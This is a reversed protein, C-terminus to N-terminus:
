EILCCEMCAYQFQLYRQVTRSKPEVALHSILKVVKGSKRPSPAWTVRQIPPQTPRLLLYPHQPAPFFRKPRGPISSRGNQGHGIAIGVSSHVNRAGVYLKLNQAHITANTLSLPPFSLVCQFSVMYLLLLFLYIFLYIFLFLTIGTVPRPPSYPQIIDLIGYQGYLRSMSPPLTALSVCRVREVKWFCLKEVEPVRKQQLNRLNWPRTRSSHNPLNFLFIIWRMPNRVRSKGALLM